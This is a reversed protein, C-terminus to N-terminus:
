EVTKTQISLQRFTELNIRRLNKIQEESLRKNAEYGNLLGFTSDKDNGYFFEMAVFKLDPLSFRIKNTGWSICVIRTYLDDNIEIPRDNKIKFPFNDFFIDSINLPREKVMEYKKKTAHLEEFSIHNSESTTM